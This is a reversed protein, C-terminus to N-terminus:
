HPDHALAELAPLAAVLAARQDPSLQELRGALAEARGAMVQIVFQTGADTITVRVARRDAPDPERIVYGGDELAAVIRTLTPPAVGERLALEGLRMPGLRWVTALAALAGPGIDTPAHRRLVRVLQGVVMSLRAGVEGVGPSPADGGGVDGRDTQDTMWLDHRM